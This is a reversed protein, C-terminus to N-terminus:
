WPMLAIILHPHFKFFTIVFNTPNRVQELLFAKKFLIIISEFIYYSFTKLDLGPVCTISTAFSVKPSKWMKWSFGFTYMDSDSRIGPFRNLDWTGGLNARRELVVFRAWKCHEQGFIINYNKKAVQQVHM